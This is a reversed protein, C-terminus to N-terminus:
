RCTTYTTTGIIYSTCHIPAPTPPPAYVPPTYPRYVPFTYPRYALASGSFILSILLLKKM